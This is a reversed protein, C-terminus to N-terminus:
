RKVGGNTYDLKISGSKKNNDSDSKGSRYEHKCSGSCFAGNRGSQEEDNCHICNAM